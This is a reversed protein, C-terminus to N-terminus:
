RVSRYRLARYQRTDPARYNNVRERVNNIRQAPAPHTKNFGGPHKPQNQELSQLMEILSSPTYGASALLALALTDAEFEQTQSYGNNVLTTVINGVSEDFVDTLEKLDLYQGAANAASTGTIMIAQTIRSTKIAKISHQLQIHAIEHAIVAALADESNTCEILGRTVFIHGGSTAFANIENSDLILVHYGNFIEPRPSNIVIAACIKNLYGTLAANGTYAPYNNLLNAGVARGIYYEQEPTIEAAARAIANSSQSISNATNEDIVGMAGAVQAGVGAVSAVTECSMLGLFCLATLVALPLRLLRKM